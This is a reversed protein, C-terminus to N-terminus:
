RGYVSCTVDMSCRSSPPSRRMSVGEIRVLRDMCELGHLVAYLGTYSGECSFALPTRTCMEERVSQGPAVMNVQVAAKRALADIEAFFGSLPDSQPLRRRLTELAAQHATIAADLRDLASQAKRSEGLLVEVAKAERENRDIKAKATM